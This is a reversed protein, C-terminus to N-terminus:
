HSNESDEQGNVKKASWSFVFSIIKMNMVWWILYGIMGGIVNHFIDSFQFSGVWFLLQSLEILGSTAATVTLAAKIGNKPKFAHMYLFTYPIFLVVNEIIEKNWVPDDRLGFNEFIRTYPITHLRAFVTGTLIFALYALYAILWKRKLFEHLKKQAQKGNESFYLYAIALLAALVVARPINWAYAILDKAIKQFDM